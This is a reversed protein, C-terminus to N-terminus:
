KSTRPLKKLELDWDVKKRRSIKLKLARNIQADLSWEGTRSPRKMWNDFESKNGDDIM